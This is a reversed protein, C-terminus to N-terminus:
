PATGPGRTALLSPAAPAQASTRDRNPEPSLEPNTDTLRPTFARPPAKGSALRLLRRVPEM